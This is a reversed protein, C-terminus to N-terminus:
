LGLLRILVVTQERTFTRVSVRRIQDPTANMAAIVSGTLVKSYLQSYNPRGCPQVLDFRYCLWKKSILPPPPEQDTRSAIESRWIAMPLNIDQYHKIDEM